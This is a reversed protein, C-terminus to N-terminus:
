LTSKRKTLLGAAAQQAETIQLLMAHRPVNANQHQHVAAVCNSSSCNGRPLQQQQIKM